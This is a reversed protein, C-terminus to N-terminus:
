TDTNLTTDSMWSGETEGLSDEPEELAIEDRDPAFPLASVEGDTAASLDTSVDALFRLIETEDAVQQRQAPGHTGRWQWVEGGVVVMAVGAALAAAMVVRRRWSTGGRHRVPLASPLRELAYSILELDQVVQRYRAACTSCTEVHAVDAIRGEGYHVLLLSRDQLCRKM